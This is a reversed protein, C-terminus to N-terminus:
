QDYPAPVVENIRHTFDRDFLVGRNSGNSFSWGPDQGLPILGETKLSQDVKPFTQRSIPKFLM